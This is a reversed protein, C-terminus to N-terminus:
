SRVSTVVHFTTDINISFTDLIMISAMYKLLKEKELVKLTQVQHIMM